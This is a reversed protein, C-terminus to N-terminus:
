GEDGGEVEGAADLLLLGEEGSGERCRLGCPGVLEAEGGAVLLAGGTETGGVGRLPTCSRRGSPRRDPCNATRLGECARGDRWSGPPRPPTLQNRLLLFGDWTQSPRLPCRLPVSGERPERFARLSISLRSRTPHPWKTPCQRGRWGARGREQNIAYLFPSLTV